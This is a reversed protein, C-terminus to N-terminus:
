VFEFLYSKYYKDIFGNERLIDFVNQLSKQGFSRYCKFHYMKYEKIEFLLDKITRIDLARFTLLVRTNFNFLEVPQQLIAMVDELYMPLLKYKDVEEPPINGKNLWSNYLLLRLRSNEYELAQSRLALQNLIEEQRSIRKLLLAESANNTNHEAM